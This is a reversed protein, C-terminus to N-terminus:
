CTTVLFREKSIYGFEVTKCVKLRPDFPLVEAEPLEVENKLADFLV